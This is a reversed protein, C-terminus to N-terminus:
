REPGIRVVNGDEDTMDFGDRLHANEIRNRERELQSGLLRLQEETLPSYVEITITHKDKVEVDAPVGWPSMLSTMASPDRRTVGFDSGVSFRYLPAKKDGANAM